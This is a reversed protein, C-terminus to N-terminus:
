TELGWSDIEIVDPPGKRTHLHSLSLSNKISLRSTRIWKIMTIILHVPRAGNSELRSNLSVCLRHAKFVLGGRFRLVNRHLLQEEREQFIRYFLPKFKLVKICYGRVRETNSLCARSRQFEPKQSSLHHMLREPSPQIVQDKSDLM